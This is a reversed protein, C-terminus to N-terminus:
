STLSATLPSGGRGTSARVAEQYKRYIDPREDMDVKIAVFNQNILRAIEQNEYSEMDMVHCWHCWVAGIDLLIPKDEEQAQQFAAQSWPRWHVPQRSAERLYPSAEGALLNGTSEPTVNPSTLHRPETAVTNMPVLSLSIGVAITLFPAIPSKRRRNM